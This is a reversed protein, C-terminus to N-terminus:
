HSVPRLDPLSIPPAPNLDSLAPSKNRNSNRLMKSGNEFTPPSHFLIANEDISSFQGFSTLEMQKQLIWESLNNNIKKPYLKETIDSQRIKKTAFDIERNKKLKNKRHFFLKM